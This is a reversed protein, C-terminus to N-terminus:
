ITAGVVPDLGGGPSSEVSLLCQSRGLEFMMLGNCSGQLAPRSRSPRCVVAQPISVKLSGAADEAYRPKEDSGHSGTSFSTVLLIKSGEILKEVRGAIVPDDYFRKCACRFRVLRKFPFPLVIKYLIDPPLLDM